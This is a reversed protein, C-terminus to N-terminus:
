AGKHRPKFADITDQAEQKTSFVIGLHEGGHARGYVIWGTETNGQLTTVTKTKPEIRLKDGYQGVARELARWQPTDEQYQM